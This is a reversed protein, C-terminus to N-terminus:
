KKSKIYTKVPKVVTGINQISKRILSVTYGSTVTSFNNEGVKNQITNRKNLDYKKITSNRRPNKLTNLVAKNLKQGSIESKCKNFNKSSTKSTNMVSNLHSRLQVNTSSINNDNSFSPIIESDIQKQLCSSLPSKTDDSMSSMKAKMELYTNKGASRCRRSEVILHDSPLKKKFTPTISSPPDKNMSFIIQQVSAKPSLRIESKKASQLVRVHEIGENNYANKNFQRSRNRCKAFFLNQDYLSARFSKQTNGKVEHYQSLVKYTYSRRYHATHQSPELTKPFVYSIDKM